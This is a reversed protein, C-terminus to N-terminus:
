VTRMIFDEIEKLKNNSIPYMLETLAFRHPRFGFQAGMDLNEQVDDLYAAGRFRPHQALFSQYYLKSPKRAGVQCSLHKVCNDFFSGEFNLIVSMVKAHELGINSLLAVQLNRSKMLYCMKAIMGFEPTLVCDWVELLRKMIVPSRIKFHDRLEDSMQTLGMDHLAHTRNMFYEAEELTINLEESIANIFSSFDVHVLVNGIDLAVFNM